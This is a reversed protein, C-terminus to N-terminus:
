QAFSKSDLQNSYDGSPSLSDNVPRFSDGEEIPNLNNQSYPVSARSIPFDSYKPEPEYSPRKMNM